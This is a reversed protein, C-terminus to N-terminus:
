PGALVCGAHPRHWGKGVGDAGIIDSDAPLPDMPFLPEPVDPANAVQTRFLEASGDRRKNACQCLRDLTAAFTDRGDQWAAALQNILHM